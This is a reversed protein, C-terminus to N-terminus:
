DSEAMSFIILLTVGIVDLYVGTDFLLPTGLAVTGLGPVPLEAWVGTMFAGGGFVSLLGSGAALLLGLGILTRPDARLLRRAEPVGFAVAHLVFASAAVLGGTFGGGPENHGGMLLFVSFLLLIPQMYLTASRLIVSNM